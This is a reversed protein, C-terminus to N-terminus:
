ASIEAPFIRGRMCNRHIGRVDGDLTYPGPSPVYPTDFERSCISGVIIDFQQVRTLARQQRKPTAFVNVTDLHFLRIHTSSALSFLLVSFSKSEGSSMEGSTSKTKTKGHTRPGERLLRKEAMHYQRLTM